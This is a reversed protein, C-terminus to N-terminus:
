TSINQIQQLNWNCPQYFINPWCYVLAEGRWHGRLKIEEWTIGGRRKWAGERQKGGRWWYGGKGDWKNWRVGSPANLKFAPLCGHGRICLTYPHALKDTSCQMKGQERPNESAEPCDPIARELQEAKRNRQTPTPWHVYDREWVCELFPSRFRWDKSQDPVQSTSAKESRVVTRRGYSKISSLTPHVNNPNPWEFPTCTGRWSM